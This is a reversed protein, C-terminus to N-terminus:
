TVCRHAIGARKPPVATSSYWRRVLEKITSVDVIRYHLHEILEPMENQLFAKDAHVTSGALCATKADPIRDLVYALVATRVDSHSHARATDTCESMLGTETHTTIQQLHVWVYWEDMDALVAPDTQIVYSVGEDVPKLQGDTIICAVELLRDKNPDLGTMECDIWVLPGDEGRLIRTAAPPPITSM